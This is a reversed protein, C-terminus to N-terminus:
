GGVTRVMRKAAQLWRGAAPTVREIAPVGKEVVGTLMVVGVGDADGLFAADLDERDRGALIPMATPERRKRRNLTEQRMMQRAM